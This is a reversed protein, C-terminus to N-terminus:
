SRTYRFHQMHTQTHTHLTCTHTHAYTHAHTYTPTVHTHPDMHTYMHMHTYTCTHHTRPHNMSLSPPSFYNILHEPPLNNLQCVFLVITLLDAKGCTTDMAVLCRCYCDQVCIETLQVLLHCTFGGWASTCM